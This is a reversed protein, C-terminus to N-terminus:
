KQMVNSMDVKVSSKDERVTTSSLTTKSDEENVLASCLSITMRETKSKM